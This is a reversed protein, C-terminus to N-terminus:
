ILCCCGYSGGRGFRATTTKVFRELFNRFFFLFILIVFLRIPNLPFRVQQQQQALMPNMEEVAQLAEPETTPPEPEPKESKIVTAPQPNVVVVKASSETAPSHSTLMPIPRQSFPTLRGPTSIPARVLIATPTPASSQLVVTTVPATSQVFPISAPTTSENSLSITTSTTHIPTAVPVLTSVAVPASSVVVPNLTVLTPNPAPVSRSTAIPNTPISVPIRVSIATPAAPIPAAFSVPIPAQVPAAISVPTTEELVPAVPAPDALFQDPVQDPVLTPDSDCPVSPTLTLTVGQEQKPSSNAVTPEMSTISSTALDVREPEPVRDEEKVTEEIAVTEFFEVIAATELHEPVIPETVVAVPPHPTSPEEEKKSIVIPETQVNFLPEPGRGVTTPSSVPSSSSTIELEAAETVEVMEVTEQQADLVVVEAEEVHMGASESEIAEVKISFALSDMQRQEEIAVHVAESEDSNSVVVQALDDNSTTALEEAKEQKPEVPAPQQPPSLPGGTGGGKLGIKPFGFSDYEIRFPAVNM